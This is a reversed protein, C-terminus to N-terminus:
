RAPKESAVFRMMIVNGQQDTVPLDKTHDFQRDGDDLHIMAFYTKGEVTPRLLEVVGKQSEGANFRLAGLINGPKGDREEHIVVWGDRALTIFSVEVNSGSAQDNVAIANGGPLVAGSVDPVEGTLGNGGKDSVDQKGRRGMEYGLGGGILLAAIVIIAVQGRSFSQFGM